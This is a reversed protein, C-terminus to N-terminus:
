QPKKNPLLQAIFNAVADKETTVIQKDVNNVTQQNLNGGVTLNNVQQKEALNEIKALQDRLQMKIKHYEIKSKETEAEMIALDIEDIQSYIQATIFDKADKKSSDLMLQGKIEDYIYKIAMIAINHELAISAILDKDSKKKVSKGGVAEAVRFENNV